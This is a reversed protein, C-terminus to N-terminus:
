EPNSQTMNESCVLDLEWEYTGAMIDIILLRKGLVEVIDGREGARLQPGGVPCTVLYQRQSLPQEGVVIDGARQARQQVRVNIGAWVIQQSEWDAPKPYTAPGNNVRWFIAPSQMTKEAVPQHHTSWAPPIVQWGPLPTM